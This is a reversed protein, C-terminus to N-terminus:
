HIETCQRYKRDNCKGWLAPNLRLRILGEEVLCRGESGATIPCDDEWLAYELKWKSPNADREAMAHNATNIFVCPYRSNFFYKAPVACATEHIKDAYLDHNGSYIGRFDFKSAKGNEFIANFSEVDMTRGHRILRVVKYLSHLFWHQRLREGSYVITVNIKDRNEPDQSCHVSRIFTPEDTFDKKPNLDRAPHYIVVKCLAGEPPETTNMFGIGTVPGDMVHMIYPRIEEVPRLRRNGQVYECLFHESDLQLFRLKSKIGYIETLREPVKFTDNQLLQRLEDIKVDFEIMYRLKKNNMAKLEKERRFVFRVRDVDIKFVSFGCLNWWDLKLPKKDKYTRFNKGVYEMWVPYVDGLRGSHGGQLEIDL